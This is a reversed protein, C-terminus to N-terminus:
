VQRSLQKLAEKILEEVSLAKDLKGVAVSADTQSFGLAVLASIAESAASNEVASAAITADAGISIDSSTLKDKLELVIRQALKAGVNNAKTLAKADSSAIHLILRDVTFESLLSLAITATVGNVAILLKFIELENIDYFASLEIADERVTMYTHVFVESGIKGLLAVTNASANCRFGVGGCEVVVARQEASILKGRLSSIM